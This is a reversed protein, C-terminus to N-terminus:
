VRLFDKFLQLSNVVVTVAQADDEDLSLANLGGGLKAHLLLHGCKNEELIM